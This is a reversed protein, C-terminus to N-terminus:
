LCMVRLLISVFGKHYKSKKSFTAPKVSPSLCFSVREPGTGPKAGASHQVCEHDAFFPHSFSVSGMAKIQTSPEHKLTPNLTYPTAFLAHGSRKCSCSREIQIKLEFKRTYNLTKFNLTYRLLPPGSRKCSCSRETHRGPGCCCWGPLRCGASQWHPRDCCPRSCPSCPPASASRTWFCRRRGPTQVCTPNLTAGISIGVRPLLAEIM